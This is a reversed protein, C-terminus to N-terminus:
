FNLFWVGILIIFIAIIKTALTSRRIDERIIHTYWISFITAILLVFFPQSGGLVVVLPASALSLAYLGVFRGANYDVQNAFILM